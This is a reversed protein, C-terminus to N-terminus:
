LALKYGKFVSESLTEFLENAAQIDLKESEEILPCVIYIQRGLAIEQKAFDYVKNAEQKKSAFTKIPKRGSPMQDIVSIDLDGHLIFALTRPIPTATMVLM